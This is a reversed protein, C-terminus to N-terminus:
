GSRRCYEAVQRAFIKVDIPKTLYGDFGAREFRERDDRMASSTIAVVPILATRADARLVELAAMGDMGPLRIDMLVLDPLHEIALAIGEEATRAELVSFDNLQLLDRELKLSRDDDEVILVREGAMAIM